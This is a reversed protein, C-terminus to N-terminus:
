RPFERDGSVGLLWARAQRRTRVAGSLKEIELQTLLGGVAPGPPINLWALVDSGSVAPGRRRASHVRRALVRARVSRGPVLLRLLLLAESAMTGSDRVWAWQKGPTEARAASEVLELLRGVDGAESRGYRRAALWAAARSGPRLGIRACLVALRLRRRSEPDRRALAPADLLRGSRGLRRASAPPLGLAPGLASVRAAWRLAPAMHRAELIKIWEARLREPAVAALAPAVRRCSRSTDADPRLGHTAIFRAARLVRLPDEALNSPAVQRLRGASLDALGGFPDLWKRAALDFAMANVTFDRRKLDEEISAGEIGALDVERKGAVRFVKPSALSLSVARGLGESEMARALREVDGSVAADVERVNRHLRLDRAAGGVIWVRSGLRAAIQALKKLEPRRALAAAGAASRHVSAHKKPNRTLFSKGNPFHAL